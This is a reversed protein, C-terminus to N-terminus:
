AGASSEQSRRLARAHEDFYERLNLLRGGEAPLERFHDRGNIVFRQWAAGAQPDIFSIYGGELIELPRSVAGTHSYKGTTDGAPTRYFSPLVFDSLPVGGVQYSFNDGECPDGPEMLYRVRASTGPWDPYAAAGHLRNGFPDVLMEILEHSATVTWNGEEYGVIAYPQGHEGAHYGAAEENGTADKIEVRWTGAPAQPYAGVSAAVRWVPAVDAQVQENLAGAVEALQAADVKGSSDVLAVHVPIAATSMREEERDLRHRAEVRSWLRYCAV